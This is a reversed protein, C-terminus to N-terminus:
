SDEGKTAREMLIAIMDNYRKAKLSLDLLHTMMGHEPCFPPRDHPLWPAMYLCTECIFQWLDPPSESVVGAETACKDPEGPDTEEFVSITAGTIWDRWHRCFHSRPSVRNQPFSLNTPNVKCLWADRDEYKYFLCGACRLDEKKM